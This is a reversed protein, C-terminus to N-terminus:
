LEQVEPVVLEHLVVRVAFVVAEVVPILLLVLDTLMRHVVKVVVVLVAAEGLFVIDMEKDVVVVVQMIFQREQLVQYHVPVVLSVLRGVVIPPLATVQLYRQVLVVEVVVQLM